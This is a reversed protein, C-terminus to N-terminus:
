LSTIDKIIIIRVFGMIRLVHQICELNKKRKRRYIYVCVCIYAYVYMDDMCM